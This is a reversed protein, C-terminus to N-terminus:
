KLLLAGSAPAPQEEGEPPPSLPNPAPPLSPLPPASRPASRPARLRTRRSRCCSGPGSSSGRQGSGRRPGATVGARPQPSTLPSAALWRLDPGKLAM